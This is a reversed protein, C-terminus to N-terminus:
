GTLDLLNGSKGTTDRSQSLPKPPEKASSNQKRAPFEWPRRGDADREDTQHEEGDTEGVGAAAEAKLEYVAARHQAGTDQAAREMDSGKTQALPVGAASVNVGGLPGVSSM